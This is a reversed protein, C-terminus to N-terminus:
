VGDNASRPTPLPVSAREGRRDREADSARVRIEGASRLHDLQIWIPQLMTATEGDLYKVIRSLEDEIADVYAIVAKSLSRYPRRPQETQPAKQTTM